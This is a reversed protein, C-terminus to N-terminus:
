DRAHLFCERARRWIEAEPLAPEQSRIAAAKLERASHWLRLAARLKADPRMRKLTQIMLADLMHSPM